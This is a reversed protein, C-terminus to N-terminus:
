YISPLPLQYAIAHAALTMAMIADIPGTSQVRSFRFAGEVGISRRSVFGIQADLLPDDVALRGSLIMETVDMSAAIMAGPKLPDWPSGTDQADRLFASAAGIVADYAITQVPDPFKHVEDLIREATIPHRDDSRLDRYVEAGIKGDPRRAAVAITAREWGPQIDIGLAYPPGVDKLPEPVRCAAWVGPAFAGPARVDVFHNLRERQWSDLPYLEHEERIGPRDLRGDRLAPNAQEIQRWDLGAESDESQWWAAYFTPDPAEDGAAQRLLRDFYSRLIVSEATGATSTLLLIPSRQARQTPGVAEWMEWDKQTLVEDFALAGISLGRASGPESTITDFFLGDAEIGLHRSTRILPRELKEGHVREPHGTLRENSELDRLVANYIIRAQKADHAAARIDSWERFPGITRGIDLLWGYFARVIVSKGNQRATSLLVTRAILDCNKDYRLAKYIAYEQWRGFTIGLERKAWQVVEPGYSGAVGPPDPTEWRPRIRAPLKPTM